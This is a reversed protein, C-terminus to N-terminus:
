SGTSTYRRVGFRWLRAAIALFVFGMLPSAACLWAPAGLADNRGLMRVVPFYGVCALPVVFILFERFWRVYIDIPYQSAEVGGYTLTNTIELSEITWFSLTAQMILIGTFLAIGGAITVLLLAVTAVSVELHVLHAAIAFIVAGQVFRDFRTLRCEAGLLQLVTNRPRLLLRDFNGNKVFQPGFVDFGRAMVETISFSMNIVAYFVAVEGFTWGRIQGFHHFLAWIGIFEASTAIAQSVLLMLFSAPYLMQARVSAVVYRGYLRLGNM